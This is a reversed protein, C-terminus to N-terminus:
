LNREATARSPQARIRKHKQADVWLSVQDGDKSERVEVIRTPDSNIRDKEQELWDSYNITGKVTRIEETKPSQIYLEMMKTM